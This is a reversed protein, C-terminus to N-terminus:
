PDMTTWWKRPGDDILGWHNHQLM